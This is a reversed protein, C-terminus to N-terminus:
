SGNHFVKGVNYRPIYPVENYRHEYVNWRSPSSIVLNQVTDCTDSLSQRISDTVPALSDSIEISDSLSLDGDFSLADSISGEEFFEEFLGILIIEVHAPRVDELKKLLRDFLGDTIELNPVLRKVFIKIDSDPIKVTDRQEVYYEPPVSGSGDEVYPDPPWPIQIHPPSVSDPGVDVAPPAPVYNSTQEQINVEFGFSRTILEFGRKTGKLKYFNVAQRIQERQLEEPDVSDLEYGLQRALYLLSIDQNIISVYSTPDPPFELRSGEGTINDELFLTVSAPIDLPNYESRIIRKTETKFSYGNTTDSSGSLIKLYRDKYFDQTTSALNPASLRFWDGQEPQISWPRDVTIIRNDPAVNYATINRVQGKGVGSLIEISYGIYQRPTNSIYSVGPLRLTTKRLQPGQTQPPLVTGEPNLPNAVIPPRIKVIDPRCVAIVGTSVNGTFPPSVTLTTVDNVTTSQIIKRYQNSIVGNADFIITVAFGVFYNDPVSVPNSQSIVIENASNLVGPNQYVLFQDGQDFSPAGEYVPRNSVGLPDVLFVIDQIQSKTRDFEESVAGCFAKLVQGPDESPNKLYEPLLKFVKSGTIPLKTLTDRVQKETLDAM